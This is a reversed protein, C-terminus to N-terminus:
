WVYALQWRVVVLGLREDFQESRNTDEPSHGISWSDPSQADFIQLRGRVDASCKLHENRNSHNTGICESEWCHTITALQEKIRPLFSSTIQRIEKTRKGLCALTWIKSQVLTRGPPTSPGACCRSRFTHIGLTSGSHCAVRLDSPTQWPTGRLAHLKPLM